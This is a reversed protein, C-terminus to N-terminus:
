KKLHNESSMSSRLKFACTILFHDSIDISLIATKFDNNYISNTIIHDIASITKNRVRIPKNMTPALSFWFMLNVFNQVNKKEEFDLM